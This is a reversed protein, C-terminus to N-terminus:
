NVPPMISKPVFIRQFDGFLDTRFRIVDPTTQAGNVFLYGHPTSTAKEFIQIFTKQQNPMIRSALRHALSKDLPNKFIVFHHACRLLTLRERGYQFLNQMIIIWSVSQHQCKNSALEALNQNKSVDQQLDDYVHLGFQKEGNGNLPHIYDELNDPVGQVPIIKPTTEIDPSLSRKIETVTASDTGYFWYIYDFSKDFIREWNELLQTIFSSKGSLPPGQCIM